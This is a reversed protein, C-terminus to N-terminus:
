NFGDIFRRAEEVSGQAAMLGLMALPGEVLGATDPHKRLDSMMSAIADTTDGQDLYARARDKCWDMHENRTM